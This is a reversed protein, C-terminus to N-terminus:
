GTYQFCKNAGCRGWVVGCAVLKRDKSPQSTQDQSTQGQSAFDLTAVFLHLIAQHIVM